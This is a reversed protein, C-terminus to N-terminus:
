MAYIASLIIGFGLFFAIFPNKNFVGIIILLEGIFNSTGPFGLNGISFFFFFVSAFPMVIVLGNFYRLLRSHYRDYLTGVLFFLASSVVGHGVMLYLAGELGQLNNSFIGLIVMNMHAISSYAIIRKLDIQRITIFSAYIVSCIGITYSFPLFYINAIPFLTITYRILGFGGLKLLISAL